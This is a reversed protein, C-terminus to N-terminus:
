YEMFYQVSLYNNRSENTMYDQFSQHDMMFDQLLPQALSAMGDAVRAQAAAWKAPALRWQAPLEPIDTDNVLKNPTRYYWVTMKYPTDSAQPGVWLQINPKGWFTYWTPRSNGQAYFDLDNSTRFEMQMNDILVMKEFLFGDPMTYNRQGKVLTTNYVDEVGMSGGYMKRLGENVWLNMRSGFHNQNDSEGIYALATQRLDKLTLSEIAM